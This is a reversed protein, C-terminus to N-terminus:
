PFVETPNEMRLYSFGIQGTTLPSERGETAESITTIPGEDFVEELNLTNAREELVENSWIAGILLKAHVINYAIGIVTILCLIASCIADSVCTPRECSKSCLVLLAGVSILGLIGLVCYCVALVASAKLLKISRNKKAAKAIFASIQCICISPFLGLCLFLIYDRSPDMFSALIPILLVLSPLTIASNVTYMSKLIRRVRNDNFYVDTVEGNNTVDEETFRIM